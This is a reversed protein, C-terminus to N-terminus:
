GKKLLLFVSALYNSRNVWNSSVSCEGSFGGLRNHPRLFCCCSSDLARASSLRPLSLKAIKTVTRCFFTGRYLDIARPRNFSSLPFVSWHYWGLHKSPFESFIVDINSCLIVRVHLTSHLLFSALGRDGEKPSCFM